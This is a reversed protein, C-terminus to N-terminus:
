DDRWRAAKAEEHRDVEDGLVAGVVVGVIAGEPGFSSGVVGGALGGVIPGDWYRRQTRGSPSAETTTRTGGDAASRDMPESIMGGLVQLQRRNLRRLTRFGQWSQVTVTALLGRVLLTGTTSGLLGAVLLGLAAAIGLLLGWWQRAVLLLDPVPREFPRRVRRVLFRAVVALVVVEAIARALGVGLPEEIGGHAIM